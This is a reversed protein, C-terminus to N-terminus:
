QAYTGSRYETRVPDSNGTTGEQEKVHVEFNYNQPVVSGKIIDIVSYANINTIGPVAKYIKQLLTLVQFAQSFVQKVEAFHEPKTKINVAFTTM